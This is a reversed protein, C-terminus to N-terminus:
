TAKETENEPIKEDLIAWGEKIPDLGYFPIAFNKSRLWDVIMYEFVDPQEKNKINSWAELFRGIPKPSTKIWIVACNGNRGIVGIKDTDRIIDIGFFGAFVFMEFVEKNTISSLPRLVLKIDFDADSYKALEGTSVLINGNSFVSGHNVGYCAVTEGCRIDVDCGIHAGLFRAKIQQKNM